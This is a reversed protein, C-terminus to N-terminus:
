HDVSMMISHMNIVIHKGYKDIAQSKSSIALSAMVESCYALEGCAKYKATNIYVSPFESSPVWIKQLNMWLYAYPM